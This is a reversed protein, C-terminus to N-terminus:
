SDNDEPFLERLVQKLAEHHSNKYELSKYSKGNKDVRFVFCMGLDDKGKSTLIWKGSESRDLYGNDKLKWNIDHTRIKLLSLPRDDGWASLFAGMTKSDERPEQAPKQEAAPQSVRRINVNRSASSRDTNKSSQEEKGSGTSSLEGSITKMGRHQALWFDVRAKMEEHDVPNNQKCTPDFKEVADLVEDIRVVCETVEGDAEKVDLAAKRNAFVVLSQIERVRYGADESKDQIRQMTVIHHRNQTLPSYFAESSGDKKIRYFRNNCDVKINTGYNKCEIAFNSSPTIVLLDLQSKLGDCELYLDRLIYIPLESHTLEWEIENEGEVGKKFAYIQLDLEKQEDPDTSEDRLQVLRKKKETLSSEGKLVVPFLTKERRKNEEDYAEKAAALKKEDRLAEGLMEPAIKEKMIGVRQDEYEGFLRKRAEACHKKGVTEKADGHGTLKRIENFKNIQNSFWQWWEEDRAGGTLIGLLYKNKRIVERILGITFQTNGPKELTAKARTSLVYSPNAQAILPIYRTKLYLEVANCFMILCFSTDIDGDDLETNGPNEDVEDLGFLYYLIMGTKIGDRIQEYHEGGNEEFFENFDNASKFGFKEYQQATLSFGELALRTNDLYNATDVYYDTASNESEVGPVSADDLGFIRLTETTPVAACVRAKAVDLRQKLEKIDNNDVADSVQKSALEKEIELMTEYEHLWHEDLIRKMESIANNASWVDIDGIVYFRQKARSAAVNVINPKVWKVAGRATADCGLLFIVEAAEKGQFTHVTGINNKSFAGFVEDNVDMEDKHGALYRRMGSVVSKFPSIIYLSPVKGHAKRFAEAVLAFAREGQKEVFHNGSGGESGIVNFWASSMCCYPNIIKGDSDYEFQKEATEKCMLGDYSIENSIDFMPSVCRRHVLLPSGVWEQGEGDANSFYSGFRNQADAFSQVSHGKAKYCMLNEDRFARRILNLDDKEVPEVQRPDGVVLARRCRFLAGAAQQPVAQGAEDVILLGFSRPTKVQAFFRGVSAFTTSVVPIVLLLTQLLAPMAAEADESEFRVVSYDGSEEVSKVEEHWLALLNQLNRGCCKSALVFDRIVQLAWYFLEERLRDYEDSQYLNSLHAHKNAITKERENEKDAGLLDTALRISKETFSGNTEGILVRRKEEVNRLQIKFSRVTDRYREVAEKYERKNKTRVSSVITSLAPMFASRNANKGLPVAVFGWPANSGDKSKFQVESPYTFFVDQMVCPKKGRKKYAKLSYDYWSIKKQKFGNPDFLDAIHKRSMVKPDDLVNDDEKNYIGNLLDKAIPLEKSINEVAANNSSCVIMSYDNIVDADPAFEYFHEADEVYGEKRKPFTREEFAEDPDDYKALVIAKKVINSAIVDKLLTTKGTGPPGNVSMIDSPLYEYREPHEIGDGATLNVAVQQMLALPYMSPWKGLPTREPKLVDAYFAVIEDFSTGDPGSSCELANLKDAHRGNEEDLASLVYTLFNKYEGELEGRKAKEIQGRAMNLDNFYFSSGLGAGEWPYKKEEEANKFLAFDIDCTLKFPCSDRKTDKSSGSFSILPSALKEVEQALKLVQSWTVEAVGGSFVKKELRRAKDEFVSVSLTTSSIDKADRVMSAACLMPSLQLSGECYHGEKDIEFYAAAIFDAEEEDTIREEALKSALYAALAERSVSGVYVSGGSLTCTEKNVEPLYDKRFSDGTRKVLDGLAVDSPIPSCDNYSWRCGWYHYKTVSELDKKSIPKPSDPYAEQALADMICWYDLVKLAAERRNEIENKGGHLISSPKFYDFFGM